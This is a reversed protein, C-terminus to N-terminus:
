VYTSSKELRRRIEEKIEEKIQIYVFEYLKEKVEECPLHKRCAESSEKCDEWIHLM